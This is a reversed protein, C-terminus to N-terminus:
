STVWDPSGAESFAASLSASVIEPARIVDPGCSAEFAPGCSALRGLIEIRVPDPRGAVALLRLFAESASIRSLATATERRSGLFVLGRPAFVAVFREPAEAALDWSRKQRTGDARWGIQPEMTRRFARCDLTEPELMLSDDTAVRWGVSMLATSLTTKGAGAAGFVIMGPSGPPAVLGAAHLPVLGARDFAAVLAVAIAQGRDCPGLGPAIGVDLPEVGDGPPVFGPIPTAYFRRGVAALSQEEGPPTSLLVRRGAFEFGVTAANM